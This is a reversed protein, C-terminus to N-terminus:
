NLLHRAVDGGLFRDVARLFAGLFSDTMLFWFYFFAVFYYYFPGIFIGSSGKAVMGTLLLTHDILIHKAAWANDVQDWGFPNYQETAYFRTILLVVFLLILVIRWKFYIVKDIIPVKKIKKTM